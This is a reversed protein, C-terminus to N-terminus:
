AQILKEPDGEVQPLNEDLSLRLCHRPSALVMPKATTTLLNNLDIGRVRLLMKGKKMQEVDLLDTVMRHLRLADMYIDNAFEKVEESPYDEDRLLTSFGEITTLTTRFEHSVVSIFDRQMTNVHELQENLLTKAAMLQNQETAQQEYQLALACLKCIATIVTSERSTPLSVSEPFVFGLLGILHSTIHIPVLHCNPASSLPSLDALLPSQTIIFPSYEQKDLLAIQSPDTILLSLHIGTLSTRLRQEQQTSFGVLALPSLVQTMPHISIIIAHSCGLLRRALALLNSEIQQIVSAPDDQPDVLERWASSKVLLEVMQLLGDLIEVRREMHKRTTVDRLVCIAGYLDGERTYLPAGTVSLLVDRGNLTHFHMTVADKAALREGGLLRKLPLHETSFPHGDADRLQYTTRWSPPSSEGNVEVPHAEIELLHQAAQNSCLIHEQEDYVIIGDMIANFVTELENLRELAKRRVRQQAEVLNRAVEQQAGVLDRAVEQQAGVLDRAVEQQAGVLEGAMQERGEALEGMVLQEVQVLERVIHQQTQVSERTIQQQEEVLEGTVRKVLAETTEQQTGVLAEATEQQTGVLVIAVEQQTEVLEGATRLQAEVLERAVQQEVQVLEVIACLQAEILEEFEHHEAELLLTQEFTHALAAAVDVLLAVDSDLFLYAEKMGVHLVGIVQQHVILPVGLLSHLQERLVPTLIELKSTDQVILPMGQTIIQGAFGQGLPIYVDRAVTEELGLVTHIHLATHDETLLLLALNDATMIERLCRLVALSLDDVELRTLAPDTLAQLIAALTRKKSSAEESLHKGNQNHM